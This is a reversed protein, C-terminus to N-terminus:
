RNHAAEKKLRRKEKKTTILHRIAMRPEVFIMRPGSYRMVTRIQERMDPRYCHVRCNACFTKSEMFPCHDSREHTYRELAACEPCLGDTTHHIKRCYLRIMKSVVIKEEARKADIDTM